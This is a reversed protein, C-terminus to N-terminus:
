RVSQYRAYKLNRFLPSLCFEGRYPVSFQSSVVKSNNFLCIYSFGRWRWWELFSAISVEGGEYYGDWISKEGRHYEFFYGYYLPLDYDIYCTRRKDIESRKIQRKFCKYRCYYCEKNLSKIKIKYTNAPFRSIILLLLQHGRNIYVNFFAVIRNLGEIDRVWDVPGKTTV